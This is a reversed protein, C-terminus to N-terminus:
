SQTKTYLFQSLAEINPYEWFLTPELQCELWDALEGTLSMAVSSDLAYQSFPEEIDIEDADIQASESLHEILWDQITTESVSQPSQHNSDVVPSPDPQVSAKSATWQSVVTLENAQFRAKCAQRQIKGSSTKPISATKLLAIAHVQLGHQAAVAQRIAQVVEDAKSADDKILRLQSREIEQGVVLQEIGDVEVSFAASCEARLAPHSQMVTLEIDQPYHNRGWLIIVDKIRGTIFLEGGKLFGLDGTRLFPRNLASKRQEKEECDVLQANFTQESLEAQNWYGQAVSGGSVWIEGVQESACPTLQEPHVIVIETDLYAHGCGVQRDYYVPEAAVEGGSIMLTAEAMGYCPYFAKSSFGCSAFKANFAEISSKRVPESGSYASEWCSLDLSQQQEPTIKQTCLEYGLNPGGSHTARYHSIAQLWRVPKQMFAGPSMIVGLFGTYLPQIIGDILGMDHFSPLWTVSVSETSLNFSQQIYRSNHILNGHSVMVGKPTGTSGSTYQLFALSQKSIIPPTWSLSSSTAKQQNQQQSHDPTAIWTLQSFADASLQQNLKPRLSATTLAVKADANAAIAALKTPQQSRKPLAVPVAVVGAYLCGLFATIFEIGQPYLLIAREGCSVSAQLQAAIAQAAYDLEAYTIHLTEDEGDTLFTYARKEPQTQSRWQLLEVLNGPNSETPSFSTPKASRSSLETTTWSQLTTPSTM